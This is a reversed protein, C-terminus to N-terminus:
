PEEYEIDALREPLTTPKPIAIEGFSTILPANLDLYHFFFAFRRNSTPSDIEREDFATQWNDRPQDAIMQTFNAFDFSDVDGTLELELLHVPEDAEVEHVGVITAQDTMTFECGVFTV